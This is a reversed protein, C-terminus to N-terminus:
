FSSFCSTLLFQLYLYLYRTSVHANLAEIYPAIDYKLERSILAAWVQEHASSPTSNKQMADILFLLLLASFSPYILDHHVQYKREELYHAFSEDLILM